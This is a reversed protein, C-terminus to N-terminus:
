ALILTNRTTKLNIEANALLSVYFLTIEYKKYFFIPDLVFELRGPQWIIGFYRIKQKHNIFTVCYPCNSLNNSLHTCLELIELIIALNWSVITLMMVNYWLISKSSINLLSQGHFIKSNVCLKHHMDWKTSCMRQIM